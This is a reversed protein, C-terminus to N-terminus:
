SPRISCVATSWVTFGHRIECGHYRSRRRAQPNEGRKGGEDGSDLAPEELAEGGLGGWGGGDGEGGKHSVFVARCADELTTAQIATAIERMPGTWRGGRGKGVGIKFRLNRMFMRCAMDTLAAGDASVPM